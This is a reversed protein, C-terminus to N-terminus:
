DTIQVLFHRLKMSQKILRLLEDDTLAQLYAWAESQHVATDPASRVVEALIEDLVANEEGQM